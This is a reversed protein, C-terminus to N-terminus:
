IKRQEDEFQLYFQKLYSCKFIECVQSFLGKEEGGKLKIPALAIIYRYSANMFFSMKMSTVFMKKPMRAM